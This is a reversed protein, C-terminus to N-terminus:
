FDDEVNVAPRVLAVIEDRFVAMEHVGGVVRLGMREGGGEGASSWDAFAAVTQGLAARSGGPGFSFVELQPLVVAPVAAATGNVVAAAAQFEVEVRDGASLSLQYMDTEGSVADLQGTLAM